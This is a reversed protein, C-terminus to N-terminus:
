RIVGHELQDAFEILRNRSYQLCSALYSVVDGDSQRGVNNSEDLTNMTM